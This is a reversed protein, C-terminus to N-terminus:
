RTRMKCRSSGSWSSRTARPAIPTPWRGYMMALLAIVLFSHARSCARVHSKPDRKMSESYKEIAEPFKGERFLANGEQRLQEGIEPNIYASQELKKKEQQLLKLKKEVEATRDEM